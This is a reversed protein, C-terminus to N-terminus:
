EHGSYLLWFLPPNRSKIIPDNEVTIHAAILDNTRSTVGDMLDMWGDDDKRAKRKEESNHGLRWFRRIGRKTSGAGDRSEREREREESEPDSDAVVPLSTVQDDRTRTVPVESYIDEYMRRIDSVADFIASALSESPTPVLPADDSDSNSDPPTPTNPNLSTKSLSETLGRM